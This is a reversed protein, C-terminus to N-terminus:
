GVHLMHGKKTLYRAFMSGDDLDVLDVGHELDLLLQGLLGFFEGQPCGRVALDIDSTETQAAEALSGFVFVEKCGGEKLIEVARRVDERFSRPIQTTSVTM